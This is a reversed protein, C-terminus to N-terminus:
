LWSKARRRAIGVEDQSKVAKGRNYPIWANQHVMLLAGGGATHHKLEKAEAWLV